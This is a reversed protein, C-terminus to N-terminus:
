HTWNDLLLHTMPFAAALTCCSFSDTNAATPSSPSVFKRHGRGAISGMMSIALLQSKRETFQTMNGALDYHYSETRTLPDTRTALFFANM